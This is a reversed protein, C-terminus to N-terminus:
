DAQEFDTSVNSPKKGFVLADIAPQLDVGPPASTRLHELFQENSYTSHLHQEVFDILVAKIDVDHQKFASAVLGIFKGGQRYAASPTMRQYEGPRALARPTPRLMENIKPPPNTTPSGRDVWWYTIAEDIWGANGDAPHAGRGFWSHMVEHKLAGPDCSTAGSYEMGGSRPFLHAVFARHPYFGIEAGLLELYERPREKTGDHFQQGAARTSYVTVPIEQQAITATSSSFYYRDDPVLHFFVSSCTSTAPYKARWGRTTEQVQGNAMIRHPRAISPVGSDRLDVDITLSFQDSELSSPLYREYFTRGDTRYTSPDYDMVAMLFDVGDAPPSSRKGSQAIDQARFFQVASILRRTSGSPVVSCEFRCRPTNSPTLEYETQLTYQKGLELAYPLTRWTRRDIRCTPFDGNVWAGSLGIRYRHVSPVLDFLAQGKSSPLDTETQPLRFSVAVQVMIKQSQADVVFRVQQTQIDIFSAAVDNTQRAQEPASRHQQSAEKTARIQTFAFATPAMCDFLCLALAVVLGRCLIASLALQRTAADTTM